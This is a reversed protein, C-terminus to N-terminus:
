CSFSIAVSPLDRAFCFCLPSSISTYLSSIPAKPLSSLSYGSLDWHQTMVWIAAAMRSLCVVGRQAAVAQPSVIAGFGPTIRAGAGHLKFRIALHLTVLNVVSPSLWLCYIWTLRPAPQRVNPPDVDSMVVPLDM